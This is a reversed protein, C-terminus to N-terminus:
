LDHEIENILASLFSINETSVEFCKSIISDLHIAVLLPKERCITVYSELLIPMLPLLETLCSIDPLGSTTVLPRVLAAHVTSAESSPPTISFFKEIHGYCLM